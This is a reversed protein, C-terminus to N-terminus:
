SINFKTVRIAVFFRDLGYVIDSVCQRGSVELNLFSSTISHRNNALYCVTGICIPDYRM